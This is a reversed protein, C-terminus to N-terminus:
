GVLKESLKWLREAEVHSTVWPKMTDKLPDGLLSDLIYQGNNEPSPNTVAQGRKQMLCPQKGESGPAFSAFIYPAVGSCFGPEKLATRPWIM